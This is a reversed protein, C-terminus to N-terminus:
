QSAEPRVLRAVATEVDLAQGVDVEIGEALEDVSRHVDM